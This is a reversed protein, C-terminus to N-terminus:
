STTGPSHEIEDPANATMTPANKKFYDDNIVVHMQKRLDDIAAQLVQNTKEREVLQKIPDKVEEFARYKPEEKATAQVIWFSRIM